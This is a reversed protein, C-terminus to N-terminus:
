FIVEDESLSDVIKVANASTCCVDTVAKVEATTNVYSVVAAKPYEKKLRIVEEVTVMSAMPCIAQKSPSLVTKSPSIIKATEAMFDVGCFVIVSATTSAAKRALELSDGIFDAVNYVEPRQYNHVLICANKEKKLKNIKDILEIM